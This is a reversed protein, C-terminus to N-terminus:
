SQINRRVALARSYKVEGDNRNVDFIYNHLINNAQRDCRQSLVLVFVRVSNQYEFKIQRHQEAGM